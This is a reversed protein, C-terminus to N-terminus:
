PASKEARPYPPDIAVDICTRFLKQQHSLVNDSARHSCPVPLRKPVTGILASTRHDTTPRAQDVNGSRDSFRERTPPIARDVIRSLPIARDAIRSLPIARRYALRPNRLTVAPGAARLLTLVSLFVKQLSM